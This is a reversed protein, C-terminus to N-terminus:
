RNGGSAERRSQSYLALAEDMDAQRRTNEEADLEAENIPKDSFPMNTSLRSVKPKEIVPAPTEAGMVGQRLEAVKRAADAVQHQEIRKKVRREEAMARRRGAEDGHRTAEYLPLCDILVRGRRREDEWGRVMAPSHYDSPDIGILVKMGAYKLMADQTTEDGFLGRDFRIRGDQMVTKVHWKMRVSRRQLPTVPRSIRGQLLRNFADNRCEGPLLGLARSDTRANFDHISKAVFREFLEIDVPVPDPNPTDNPGSRQARYFVPDNDLRRLVSFISESLKSRAKNPGANKLEIGFLKLVGPVEWEPSRTEKRRILPKLGGAMRKSNFASGNDTYVLDPIDNEECMRITAEATAEENESDSIAYGVIRSSARDTYVIVWPCGIKGDRFRVKVKFERGDLEVQSMAFMGEVTRPQYQILSKAAEDAGMRLARKRVEDMADWRRMVTRYCPWAWGRAAKQDEIRRWAEKLPWGTGNKGALGLLTEFEAWAEPSLEATVTRGQYGSALAPAWNVTDVGAILAAWRRMTAHSPALIATDSKATEVKLLRAIQGWKLGAREHRAIFMMTEARTYAANQVTVPKAALTLHAADDHTGMPLGMAEARRALFALREPEPLDVINVSEPKRADDSSVSVPVDFRRLWKSASTRHVPIRGVGMIETVPVLM